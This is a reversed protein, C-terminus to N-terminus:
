NNCIKEIVLRRNPEEGISHTRIRKNDQLRSHIIKREYASMPELTVSKGTKYVTKSIKDALEKLTKERKERYEEIDVIVRIRPNINKNVISSVITQFSQLCEGRHGILFGLEKGRLNVKICGDEIITNVEIESINLKKIFDYIFKETLKKVDEINETNVQYEKKVKQKKLTLEVRVVRPNLISFFNKKNEELIKIEVMDRSVKLEKLGNEIAENTTRGEVIIKDEM